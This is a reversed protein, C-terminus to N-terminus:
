EAAHAPMRSVAAAPRLVFNKTQAHVIKRVADFAATTPRRPNLGLVIERTVVPDAIRVMDVLGACVEDHVVVYPLISFRGGSMVMGKTLTISDLEMVYNLAIDHPETCRDLIPRFGRSVILPLKSVSALSVEEIGPMSNAAGVLVMGDEELPIIQLNQFESNRSLVALDIKGLLSQEFFVSFGEIVHLSINPYTLKCADITLPALAPAITPPMGIAVAGEPAQGMADLAQRLRQADALLTEGQTLLIEGAETLVM